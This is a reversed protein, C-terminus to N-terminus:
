RRRRRRSQRRRSPSSKPPMLDPTWWSPYPPLGHPFALPALEHLARSYVRRKFHIVERVPTWYPVWEWSEFEPRDTVDFRFRSDLGRFRLLFWRQKQGICLPRTNRRYQAPLRYRLWSRTSGLLEVDASDLGVEENLERYLAAEPTEGAHVGGQPFQWGRGEPRRGLFLEGTDRILIIGINARFGSSDIIDTM